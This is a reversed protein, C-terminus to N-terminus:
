LKRNTRSVCVYVCFATLSPHAAPPLCSGLFLLLLCFRPTTGLGVQGCEGCSKNEVPVAHGKGCRWSECQICYNSAGKHEAGCGDSTCTWTPGGYFMAQAQRPQLVSDDAFLELCRSSVPNKFPSSTQKVTDTAAAQKAGQSFFVGGVTTTM